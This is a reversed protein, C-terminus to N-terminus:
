PEVGAARLAADVQALDREIAPIDSCNEHGKFTARERSLESTIYDRASALAEVLASAAAILRANAKPTGKTPADREDGSVRGTIFFRMGPFSCMHDASVVWESNYLEAKWPGPTYAAKSSSDASM